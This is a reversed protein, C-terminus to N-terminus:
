HVLNPTGLHRETEQGDRGDEEHPRDRCPRGACRRDDLGPNEQVRPDDVRGGRLGFRPPRRRKGRHSFGQSEDLVGPRDLGVPVRAERRRAHLDDGVNGLVGVEDPSGAGLERRDLLETVDMPFAGESRLVPDVRGRLRVGAGVGDLEDLVLLLVRGSERQGRRELVPRAELVFEEAVDVQADVGPRRGDERERGARVDDGDLGPELRLFPVFALVHDDRAVQRSRNRATGAVEGPQRGLAEGLLLERRGSESHVDGVAADVVARLEGIVEAEVDGPVDGARAPHDVVPQFPRRVCAARDLAAVPM